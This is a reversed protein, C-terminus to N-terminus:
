TSAGNRCRAARRRRSSAPDYAFLVRDTGEAFPLVAGSGVPGRPNGRDIGAVPNTTNGVGSGSRGDTNTPATECAALALLLAVGGLAAERRLITPMHLM